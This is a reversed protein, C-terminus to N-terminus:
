PSMAVHIFSIFRLRNNISTTLTRDPRREIGKKSAKRNKEKEKRKGKKLTASNIAETDKVIIALTVTIGSLYTM